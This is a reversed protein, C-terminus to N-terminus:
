QGAEAAQNLTQDCTVTQDSTINISSGTVDIDDTTSNYQTVGQQNAVNGTNVVQQNTPCANVNDGSNSFSSSPSASGSQIRRESFEQSVSPNDPDGTSSSSNDIPTVIFGSPTGNESSNTDDIPRVIFGDGLWDSLLNEAEEQGLPVALAPGLASALFRNFPNNGDSSPSAVAPVVIAVVLLVVLGVVVLIRRM